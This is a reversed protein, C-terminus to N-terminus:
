SATKIFYSKRLQRILIRRMSGVISKLKEKAPLLGWCHRLDLGDFRTVPMGLARMALRRGWVSGKKNLLARQSAPIKWLEATEVRLYGAAIAGEIIEVGKRTRAVIMSFGPNVGDPEEYWPDGCSIDALEGGGDPWLQTSWPRFSQLFAWSEQYTLHPIKELAGRSRTAFHGPWGEGRYRIEHLGAADVGLESLLQTTACTPPTEACYFSLTVGIKEALAPNQAAAKRTAAIEVPKGIVVCPAEAREVEGLKECVSAPSYRSGTGALLDERTHSIVTANRTPNELSQRVHLAGAMGAREMCYAAIATLAGGSSGKFRIEPDTAHGEWVKAVPGWEKGFSADAEPHKPESDLVGFDVEVAPCIALCRRSKRKAAETSIDAGARLRPRLGEKPDDVMEYAGGSAYGCAGCGMCLRAAVVEEITEFRCM